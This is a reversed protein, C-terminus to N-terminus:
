PPLWPISLNKHEQPHRKSTTIVPYYKCQPEFEDHYLRESLADTECPIEHYLPHTDQKRSDMDLTPIFVVTLHSVEMISVDVPWLRLISNRHWSVLEFERNNIGLLTKTSESM